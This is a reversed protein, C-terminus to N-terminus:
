RVGEIVKHLTSGSFAIRQSLSNAYGDDHGSATSITYHRDPTIGLDKSKSFKEVEAISMGIRFEDDVPGIEQWGAVPNRIKLIGGRLVRYPPISKNTKYGELEEDIWKVEEGLEAAVLKAKRLMEAVGDRSKVADQCLEQLLSNM